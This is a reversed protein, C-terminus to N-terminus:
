ICISSHSICNIWLIKLLMNKGTSIQTRRAKEVAKSSANTKKTIAAKVKQDYRRKLDNEASIRLDDGM